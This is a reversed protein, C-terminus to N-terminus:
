ALLPPARSRHARPTLSLVIGRASMTPVPQLMVLAPLRKGPSASPPAPAHQQLVCYGCHSTNGPVQDQQVGGSGPEAIRRVGGSSCIEIWGPKSSAALAQSVAPAVVGLLMACLALWALLRDLRRGFSKNLSVSAISPSHSLSNM